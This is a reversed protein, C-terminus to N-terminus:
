SNRAKEIARRFKIPDEIPPLIVEGVGMGRVMVRGYNFIRGLIGQLVNVGEIRDINMEGVYRAVLGRKYVLRRNTIAIETTARVIMMQAFKLLGLVVVFFSLIRVGPHLMQVQTLWGTGPPPTQGIYPQMKIAFVLVGISLAISFIINMVAQLNYMWHFHGIHVLEEGDTLSQQIYNVTYDNKAM